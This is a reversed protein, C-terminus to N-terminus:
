WEADGDDKPLAPKPGETWTTASCRHGCKKAAEGRWDFAVKGYKRAVLDVAMGIACTKCDVQKRCQPYLRTVERGLRWEETAAWKNAESM